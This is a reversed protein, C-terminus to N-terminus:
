GFVDTVNIVLVTINDKGGNDLAVGVLESATEEASKDNKLIEAIEIENVMDTLGDSCILFCDGIHLSDTKHFPEIIMESEFIGLHQTLKYKKQPAEAGHIREYVEKENHDISIKKFVGDRLLFIPSDGINCLYYNDKSVLLMAATSGIRAKRKIMENCMKKNSICCIDELLNDPLDNKVDSLEAATLAAISSAVEGASIGGMGDFVGAFMTKKGFLIRNFSFSQFTNVNDIVKGNLCFNDENKERLKGKDSVVAACVRIM